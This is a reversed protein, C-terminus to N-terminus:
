GKDTTKPWSKHLLRSLARDALLAALLFVDRSRPRFKRLNRRVFEFVAAVLLAAFLGGGWRVQDGASARGVARLAHNSWGSNRVVAFSPM